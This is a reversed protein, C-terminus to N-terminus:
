GTRPSTAASRPQERKPFRVYNDQGMKEDEGGELEKFGTEMESNVGIFTDKDKPGDLCGKQLDYGM